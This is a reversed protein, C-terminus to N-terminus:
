CNSERADINLLLRMGSLQGFVLCVNGVGVEVSKLPHSDMVIMIRCM